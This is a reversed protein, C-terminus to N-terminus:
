WNCKMSRKLNPKHEYQVIKAQKMAYYKELKDNVSGDKRDSMELLKGVVGIAMLDEFDSPFLIDQTGSITPHVKDFYIKIGLTSIDPIPYFYLYDGYRAYIEPIDFNAASSPSAPNPVLPLYYSFYDKEILDANNDANASDILEVKSIRNHRGNALATAFSVSSTNATLAITSSVDQLARFMEFSGVIDDAIWQMAKYAENQKITLAYKYYYGVATLMDARTISM